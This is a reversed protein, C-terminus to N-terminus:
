PKAQALDLRRALVFGDSAVSRPQTGPAHFVRHVLRIPPRGVAVPKRVLHM